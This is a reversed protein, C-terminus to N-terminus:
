ILSTAYKKFIRNALGRKNAKVFTLYKEYQKDPLVFSMMIEYIGDKSKLAKQYQSESIVGGCISGSM